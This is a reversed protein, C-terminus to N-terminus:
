STTTPATDEPELCSRVADAGARADDSPEAGTLEAAMLEAAIEDDVAEEICATQDESVDDDVVFVDVLDGCDALAASLDEQDEPALAPEEGLQGNGDAFEQPSMGSDELRDMGITDIVAGALCEAM